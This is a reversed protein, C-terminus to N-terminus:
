IDQVRVVDPAATVDAICAVGDAGFASTLMDAFLKHQIAHCLCFLAAEHDKLEIRYDFAIDVGSVQILPDAKPLESHDLFAEAHLVTM